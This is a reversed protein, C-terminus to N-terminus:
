IGGRALNKPPAYISVAWTKRWVVGPTFNGLYTPVHFGFKEVAEIGAHKNTIYATQDRSLQLARSNWSHM